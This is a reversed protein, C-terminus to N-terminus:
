YVLSNTWYVSQYNTRDYTSISM